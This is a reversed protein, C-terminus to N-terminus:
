QLIAQLTIRSLYELRAMTAIHLEVVEGVWVYSVQGNVLGYAGRKHVTRRQVQLRVMSDPNLISSVRAIYKTWLLSSSLNRLLMNLQLASFKGNRIDQSVAM